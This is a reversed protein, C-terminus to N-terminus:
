SSVMGLVRDDVAALLISNDTSMPNITLLKLATKLWVKGNPLHSMKEVSTSMM